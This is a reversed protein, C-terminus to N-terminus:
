GEQFDPLEFARTDALPFSDVVSVEDVSRRCRFSDSRSSLKPRHSEQRRATIRCTASFRATRCAIGKTTDIRALNLSESPEWPRYFWVRAQGPPLPPAAAPATVPPEACAAVILLLGGVWPLWRRPVRKDITGFM